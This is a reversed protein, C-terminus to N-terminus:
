NKGLIEGGTYFFSEYLLQRLIAGTSQYMTTPTPSPKCILGMNNALDISRKMHMPDSILLITKCSTTDIIKKSEVLNELTFHSNEEIWIDIEQVGHDVAYKRALSSDSNRQGKGFGGTFIIKNIRKQYYLYIAHNIRERFVPSIEGENTAAGLVIAVDSRDESYEDSYQYIRFANIFFYIFLIYGILLLGKLYIKFKRNSM